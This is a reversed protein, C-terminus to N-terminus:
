KLLLLDDSHRTYDRSDVAEDDSLDIFICEEKIARFM